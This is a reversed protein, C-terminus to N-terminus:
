VHQYGGGSDGLARMRNTVRLCGVHDKNTDNAEQKPKWMESLRTFADHLQTQLM